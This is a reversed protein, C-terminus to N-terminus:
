GRLIIVLLAIIAYIISMMPQGVARASDLSGNRFRRFDM